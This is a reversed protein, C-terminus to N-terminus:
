KVNRKEEWKNLITKVREEITGRPIIIIKYGLERYTEKLLEHIQRSQEKDRRTETTEFIEIPEILFVGEYKTKRAAETLEKPPNIKDLKYYAIGDAIGRDLFATKTYNPIKSEWEKQTRMVEEQFAERNIWPLKIGKAELEKRIVYNAAEPVTYFGIKALAEILTSKGAGPGGTLIYKNTM